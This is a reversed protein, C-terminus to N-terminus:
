ARSGTIANGATLRRMCNSSLQRIPLNTAWVLAGVIIYESWPGSELEFMAARTEVFVIWHIIFVAHGLLTGRAEM